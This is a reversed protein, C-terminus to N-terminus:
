VLLHPLSPNRRRPRPTRVPQLIPPNNNHALPILIRPHFVIQTVLSHRRSAVGASLTLLRLCLLTLSPVDDIDIPELSAKKVAELAFEAIQQYVKRALLDFRIRNISSKFDVGEMLSEVSANATASASLSKKVVEAELLLKIRARNDEETDLKYKKKFEASFHNYLARDFAGGPALGHMHSTALITYMGARVAIVAADARVGGIDLVLFKKDAMTTPENQLSHYALLAATPEHIIQLVPIGARESCTKLEDRQSASFNTPVTYVAGQPAHGLFHQASQAIRALHRTVVDSISLHETKEEIEEDLFETTSDTRHLPTSTGTRAPTSTGSVSPTPAPVPEKPVMTTITFSVDGAATPM